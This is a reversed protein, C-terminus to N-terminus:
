GEIVKVAAQEAFYRLLAARRWGGARMTEEEHGVWPIDTGPLERRPPVIIARM